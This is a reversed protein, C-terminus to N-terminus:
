KLDVLKCEFTLTSNAPIPGSKSSGYALKPPVILLREGGAQMGAIGEDWGKIVEGKGLKFTFPKGKTNSDFVKGNQLKGVYRMSVAQGKKAQPGTGVKVDKIRLGSPLVKMDGESAAKEKKEEKKEKKEKKTAGNTKAESKEEVPVPAGNEAKLKKAKKQQSKSLKESPEGTEMAVDSGRPRKLSKSPAEEIEDLEDMGVDVDSSVDRLDFDDEEGESEDNFPVNDPAQDIYNGTLYVTNKGVVEFLFEEEEELVVNVVSQEIKGPILSGLVTTELAGQAEEAEDDDVNVPKSYHLKVTTRSIEDKLEDGLAVNTIRVDAQPTFAQPEGPTVALSWVAVAVVM